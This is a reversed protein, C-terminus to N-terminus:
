ITVQSKLTDMTGRGLQWQDGKKPRMSGGMVWLLFGIIGLYGLNREVGLIINKGNCSVTESSELSADKLNPPHPLPHCLSPLTNPYFPFFTNM